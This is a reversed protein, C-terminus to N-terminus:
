DVSASSLSEAPLPEEAIVADGRRRGYSVARPLRGSRAALLVACALAAAASVLGGVVLSSRPGFVEAVYGILPAGVPTGGLFVLVYIAMVRGRIQPDAGLQVTSNASVTFTLVMAGTPILLLAFSLFTPMLGTVAELLGFATGAVLYTRQRPRRGGGSNRASVLAGGLSGLAFCTGLLGYSAADRHFTIKAILATTLQFNLGFMGIVGVLAIPVLLDPRGRVYALGEKLQGKGRVLRRTVHLEQVRIARLGAIVALYSVANILFVPGTDISHILLGAVAPGVVRAANFTASNLSIANPLEERGVLEQVFAQRVPTDFVTALGLAFALVDVEWLRVAGAVTLIGLVLALVGMAAQAWILTRRKDYRDAIVGGYLGFMLMPLFQLATVIGIATGSNHSLQLVLWDQATRQMWTGTLSVVQGGAFLRYNRVRLSRFAPSV